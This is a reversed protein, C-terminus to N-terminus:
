YEKIIESLRASFVIGKYGRIKYEYKVPFMDSMDVKVIKIPIRKNTHFGSYENSLIYAKEKLM